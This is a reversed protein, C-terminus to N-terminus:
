THHVRRCAVATSLLLLAALGLIPAGGTSPLSAGSSPTKTTTTPKATSPTSASAPVYSVPALSNGVGISACDNTPPLGAFREVLFQVARPEFRVAAPTHSFGPYEEYQITMGQSCYEHALAEVDKTVMIDDGISSGNNGVALFMPMRPHGPATGMILKNIVTVFAKISRIDRYQPKLMKQVTLGPHTGNFDGICGTKDKAVLAKGYASLYQSLDLGFARTLATLVAPMIGSWDASGNIYQLNHFFHVPVGGAAVGVIDLEPAYTPALEAAWDAAISGGSYGTLGVKTTGASVKLFSETARIADLMGYGSEHGATWHLGPGEFDPVTVVSGTAYYARVFGQEADSLSTNASGPDGGRLTYSPDCKDALSDYFSLYGIVNPAVAATPPVVVTTVTATPRGIEDQTRYLLQTAPLPVGNTDIALTVSRTKLVTGRAVNALPTSGSYTYFADASPLAIAAARAPTSSVLLGLVVALAAAARSRQVRDDHGTRRTAVGSRSRSGGLRQAREGVWFRPPEGHIM